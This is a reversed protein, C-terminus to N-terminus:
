VEGGLFSLDKEDKLTIEELENFCIDKFMCYKCSINEGRLKKPNIKFDANEIKEAMEKVKQEALLILNNEKEENLIKTYHYFGNKTMKMGKIYKSDQYTPDFEKVLNEDDLMYGNLKLSEEKQQLVTQKDDHNFKTELINQLFFGILKKDENKSVLLAYIPLQMSLGHITDNLHIKTDGTKYDVLVFTKENMYLKDIIGMLTINLKGEIKYFYKQETKKQKLNTKNEFEKIHNIIIEIDKVLKDKFFLEKKSFPYPNDEIYKEIYNDIDNPMKELASHFMSGIYTTFTDKYPSLKLIRNIYFKFSCEYFENLSSYSLIIKNDIVKYFNDININKFKSDYKKYPINYSAELKTTLPTIENYLKKRDLLEILKTKNFKNSYKSYSIEEHKINKLIPSPLYINGNAEKKYTIIKNKIKQLANITKEEEIKNKLITNELIDPKIQDYLYDEDKHVYPLTGKNANLVFVYEDSKFYNDTLDEIRIDNENTLMIEKAYTDLIFSLDEKDYDDLNNIKNILEINEKTLTIEENNLLKEKTNKYELTAYYPNKKININLNYKKGINMLPYAYEEKVNTLVIKNLPIEQELLEYIKEFVFTVEDEITDLEYSSTIEYKKLDLEKYEGILSEEFKTLKDYGIVYVNKLNIKEHEILLNNQILDKKIKRLFEMNENKKDDIYYIDNLIKKAIDYKINYKKSIYFKASKKIEFFRNEKLEDLSIIKVKKLINLEDIEKLLKYKIKNPALITVEDLDKIFDM